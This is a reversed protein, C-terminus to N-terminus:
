PRGTGEALLGANFGSGTGIELVKMGLKLELWALMKSVVYPQSASSPPEHIMVVNDSYILDLDAESPHHRDVALFEAPAPGPRRRIFQHRPVKLFAERVWPSEASFTRELAEALAAMRARVSSPAEM